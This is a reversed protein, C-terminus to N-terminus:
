RHREGGEAHPSAGVTASLGRAITARETDTLRAHGHMLTYLAPPMEGDLVKEAAERAEDQPRQWESFNLAARGERVNRAVLWSTPPVRSYIPWETQNSHCDFCARQALARTAPLDWRPEAVVPPNAHAAGTRVVEVGVVLLFVVAVPLWWRALRFSMAAEKSLARCPRASLGPSRLVADRIGISPTCPTPGFAPM